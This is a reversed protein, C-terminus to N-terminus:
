LNESCINGNFLRAVRSSVFFSYNILNSYMSFNLWLTEPATRAAGHVPSDYLMYSTSFDTKPRM